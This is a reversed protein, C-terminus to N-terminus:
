GNLLNGCYQGIDVWKTFNRRITWGNQLSSGYQIGMQFLEATNDVWKTFKRRITWGNQLSGGYQVGMQFIEATNDVCKTFNRRIARGNLNLLTGGYQGGM